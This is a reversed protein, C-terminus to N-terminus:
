EDPVTGLLRQKRLGGIGAVLSDPFRELRTNYFTVIDNYYQRALAIRDETDVLEGQLRLFVDHSGLEPYKEVVAELAVATEGAGFIGRLEALREQTAQEYKALGKVVGELAPILDHRRKLQVDTQSWAQRVRRYLSKLSNYTIWFWGIGLAVFYLGLTLLYPALPEKLGPVVRSISFFASALAVAMGAFVLLWYNFGMSRSVKAEDRTSILFMPTGKEWAIEAAVLDERERSQGFVYLESDPKVLYETFRRRDDSHMIPTAPGKGFYMPDARGCTHNLSKDAEVKAGDPRVLVCGTDDCLEFATNETGSAVTSWGSETKTRTKTKGDSDTYTETVHRTWHEEITWRHYICPTETLFSKIPNECSARGKLEVLGIFVGKAKSTPMDDVLRKKKLGRFAFILCLLMVAAGIPLSVPM